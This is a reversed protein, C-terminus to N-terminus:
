ASRPQLATEIVATNAQGWVSYADLTSHLKAFDFSTYLKKDKIHSEITLLQERFVKCNQYFNESLNM